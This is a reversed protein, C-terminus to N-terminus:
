EIGGENNEGWIHLWPHVKFVVRDMEETGKGLALREGDLGTYRTVHYREIMSQVKWRMFSNVVVDPLGADSLVTSLGRRLSHWGAEPIHKGYSKQEISHFISTLQGATLVPLEVKIYPVIEDPILHYRQRGHKITQVFLTKNKLDIDQSELGALEERRLGFTTSLALYASEEPTVKNDKAAMIMQEVLKPELAVQRVEDQRIIPGELRGFEWPMNNVKPDNNVKFFRRAVRFAFDVTGDAYGERQLKKIFNQVIAKDYRGKSFSDFKKAFTAYSGKRATESLSALYRNLENSM